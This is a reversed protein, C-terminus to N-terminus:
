QKVWSPYEIVAPEFVTPFLKRWHAKTKEDATVYWFDIWEPCTMFTAQIAGLESQQKSRLTYLMADSIELFRRYQKAKVLKTALERAETISKFSEPLTARM